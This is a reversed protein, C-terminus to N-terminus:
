GRTVSGGVVLWRWECRRRWRGRGGDAAKKQAGFIEHSPAVGGMPDLVDGYVVAGWFVM